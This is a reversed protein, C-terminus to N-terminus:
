NDSYSDDGVDEDKEIIQYKEVEQEVDYRIDYSYLQLDSYISQDFGQM